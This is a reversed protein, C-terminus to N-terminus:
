RRFMALTVRTKRERQTQRASTDGAFISDLEDHLQTQIEPHRGILYIFFHVAAATTDHGAFMFTDVEEQIDDLSLKADRMQGILTDLFVPRRTDGDVENPEDHDVDFTAL